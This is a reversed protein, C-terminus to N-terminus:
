RVLSAPVINEIACAFTVFNAQSVIKDSALLNWADAALKEDVKEGYYGMEVLMQAFQNISLGV